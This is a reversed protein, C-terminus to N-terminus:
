HAPAPQSTVVPRGIMTMNFNVTGIAQGQNQATVATGSVGGQAMTEVNVQERAFGNFTFSSAGNTCDISACGNAKMVVDVGGSGNKNIKNSGTAGEFVSGGAGGFMSQGTVTWSATPCMNGSCTNPTAPASTPVSTTQATQASVSAATCVSAFGVIAIAIHQPTKFFKM